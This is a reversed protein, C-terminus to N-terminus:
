QVPFKTVRYSASIKADLVLLILIAQKGVGPVADLVHVKTTM